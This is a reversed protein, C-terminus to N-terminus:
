FGTLSVEHPNSDWRRCEQHLWVARDANHSPRVLPLAPPLLGGPQGQNLSVTLATTLMAATDELEGYVARLVVDSNQRRHEELERRRTSEDELRLKRDIFRYGLYLVLAGGIVTAILGGLLGSFFGSFDM